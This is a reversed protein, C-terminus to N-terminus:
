RDGADKDEDGGKDSFRMIGNVWFGTPAFCEGLLRDFILCDGIPFAEGM